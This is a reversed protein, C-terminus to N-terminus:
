FCAQGAMTAGNPLRAQCFQGPATSTNPFPGMRGAPTCCFHPFPDGAQPMIGGGGPVFGQVPGAPTFCFCAGGPMGGNIGCTGANTVCMSQAAAELVGFALAVALAIMIKMM